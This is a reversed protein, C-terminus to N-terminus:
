DGLQAALREFMAREDDDIGSWPRGSSYGEYFDHLIGNLRALDAAPIEVRTGQRPETGARGNRSQMPNYVERQFASLDGWPNPGLFESVNSGRDLHRVGDVVRSFVRQV